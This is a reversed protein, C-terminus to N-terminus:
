NTQRDTRTDRKRGVGFLAREDELTNIHRILLFSLFRVHFTKM